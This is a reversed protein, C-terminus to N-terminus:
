YILNLTWRLCPRNIKYINEVLVIIVVRVTTVRERIYTQGRWSSTASQAFVTQSNIKPEEGENVEESELESNNNTQGYSDSVPDTGMQSPFSRADEAVKPQEETIITQPRERNNRPSLERTPKSNDVRKKPRGPRLLQRTPEVIRPARGIVGNAPVFRKLWSESERSM